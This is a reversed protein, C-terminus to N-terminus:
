TVVTGFLVNDQPRLGRAGMVFAFLYIMILAGERKSGNRSAGFNFLARRYVVTSLVAARYLLRKYICCKVVYIHPRQQWDAARQVSYAFHNKMVFLVFLTYYQLARKPMESTMTEDAGNTWQRKASPGAMTSTLRMNRLKGVMLSLLITLRKNVSFFEINYGVKNPRLKARYM